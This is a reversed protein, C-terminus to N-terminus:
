SQSSLPNRLKMSLVAGTEAEVTFTRYVRTPPLLASVQAEGFSLTIVWATRQANLDFEELRVNSTPMVQEFRKVYELTANVAQQVTIM